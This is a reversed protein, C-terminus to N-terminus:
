EVLAITKLGFDPAHPDMVGGVFPEADPNLVAEIWFNSSQGGYNTIIISAFGRITIPGSKGPSYDDSIIPIYLTMSKDIYEDLRDGLEKKLSGPTTLNTGTDTQIQQGIYVMEDYGNVIYGIQQGTNIQLPYALNVWGWNGPGVQGFNDKTIYVYGNGAGLSNFVSEQIGIPILGSMGMPPGIAATARAGIDASTFGLARAFFYGAETKLLVPVQTDGNSRSIQKLENQNEINSENLGHKEVYELVFDYVDHPGNKKGDVLERAGALSAADAVNQLNRKNFYMFGVDVTTGVMGLLVFVALATLVLSQGREDRWIRM